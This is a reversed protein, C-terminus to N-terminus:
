ICSGVEPFQAILQHWLQPYHRRLFVWRGKHANTEGAWYSIRQEALPMDLMLDYAKNYDLGNSAIYAWVDWFSWRAVPLVEFTGDARRFWDDRYRILQRRGRSEEARLGLFAYDFHYESLLRELPEYVTSQMTRAGIGKALPGGHKAFTELLPETPFRIIRRGAAELRDLLAYSEPYACQADFYVAPTEPRVRWVLDAAVLSDKGTSFAIYPNESQELAQQVLERSRALVRKYTPLKAQM